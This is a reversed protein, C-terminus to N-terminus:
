RELISSIYDLACYLLSTSLFMFCNWFMIWYNRTEFSAKRELLVEGIRGEFVTWFYSYISFLRLFIRSPLESDLVEKLWFCWLNKLIWSFM